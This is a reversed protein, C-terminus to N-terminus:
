TRSVFSGNKWFNVRYGWIKKRKFNKRRFPGRVTLILFFFYQDPKPRHLDRNQFEHVNLDDKRM